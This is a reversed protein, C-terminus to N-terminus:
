QCFITRLVRFIGSSCESVRPSHEAVVNLLLRFVAMVVARVADCFAYQHVFIADTCYIQKIEGSFDRWPYIDSNREIEDISSKEPAAQSALPTCRRVQFREHWRWRSWRENRRRLWIWMALCQRYLYVTTLNIRRQASPKNDNNRHWYSTKTRFINNNSCIAHNQM